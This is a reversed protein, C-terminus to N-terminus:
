PEERIIGPVKGLGKDFAVIRNLGLNETLTLHYCDAFSLGTRQIYLEFVRTFIRKGPLIIGPLEIIPVLADRIAERPIQFTKGLVFVTEFVITESIRVIREGSEVRRIFATARTSHDAHDNLVHRLLVSTDLFAHPDNV